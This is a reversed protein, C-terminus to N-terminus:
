GPAMGDQCICMSPPRCKNWSRASGELREYASATRLAPMADVVTVHMIARTQKSPLTLRGVNEWSSISQLMMTTFFFARTGNTRERKYSTGAVRGGGLSAVAFLETCLLGGVRSAVM